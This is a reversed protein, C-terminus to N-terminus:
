VASGAHDGASGAALRDPCGGRGASQRAHAPRAASFIRRRGVRQGARARRDEHRDQWQHSRERPPMYKKGFASLPYLSLQDQFAHVAQYDEPTGTCYTRGLIWVLNTPATYKKVGPPLQGNWGPGVIAFKQAATGTTRKGPSAFVTTWADLMPLLYYRDHADPVSLIYPENTLNLWALSYLTDANPATVEKDDPKPYARLHAFQGMPAHNGEPSPVNTMVRRTLEMTVLPYGYVYAEIAIRRADEASIEGHAAGTSLTFVSTLLILAVLCRVRQVSPIRM